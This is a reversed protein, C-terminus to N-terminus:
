FLYIASYYIGAGIFIIGTVRRLLPEISALGQLWHSIGKFGMALGLSLALVPLGSGAGFLFPFGGGAPHSVALPILSGFFLGASIPCFSLAFVAGLFFPGFFGAGAIKEKQEENLKIGKIPLRIVGLLIVGVLILVPGLAKNLSQELFQSIAPISVISKVVLFGVVAYATMRGAVYMLSARLVLRPHMIRKSLFSVAAINTALPCPSLSTMVGFWLATLSGIVLSSV